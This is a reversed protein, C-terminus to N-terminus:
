PQALLLHTPSIAEKFKGTRGNGPGQQTLNGFIFVLASGTTSEIVEM